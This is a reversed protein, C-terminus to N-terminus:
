KTSMGKNLWNVMVAAIAQDNTEIMMMHGNGHIGFDVLHIHRVPM